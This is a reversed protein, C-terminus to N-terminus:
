IEIKLEFNLQFGSYWDLLNYKGSRKYGFNEVYSLKKWYRKGGESIFETNTFIIDSRKWSEPILEQHQYLYYLIAADLKYLMERWQGVEKSIRIKYSDINKMLDEICVKGMSKHILPSDKCSGIRCGVSHWDYGPITMPGEGLIDTNIKTM